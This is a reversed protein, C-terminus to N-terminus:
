ANFDDDSSWSVATVSPSPSSQPATNFTQSTADSETEDEVESDSDYDDTTLGEVGSDSVDVPRREWPPLVGVPLM